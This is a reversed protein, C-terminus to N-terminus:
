KLKTFFCDQKPNLLIVMPEKFDVILGEEMRVGVFENAPQSNFFDKRSNLLIGNEPSYQWKEAPADYRFGRKSITHQELTGDSHLILKDSAVDYSACDSGIHLNWEGVLLAGAEASNRKHNCGVAALLALILLRHAPKSIM